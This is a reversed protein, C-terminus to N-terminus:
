PQVTVAAVGSGDAQTFIVNLNQVGDYQGVQATFPGVADAPIAVTMRQIQIDGLRWQLGPVAVGGGIAVRKGTSDFVHVFPAFNWQWRDPQLEEIQWYTLLVAQQGAQPAQEHVAALFSIGKDGKRKQLAIGKLSESRVRYRQVFSGDDFVHREGNNTESAKDAGIPQPPRGGGDSFLLYTAGGTPVFTIQDANISRDLTFLHGALSNLTWENVDAFIVAGPSRAEAPILMHMMDIGAGVPLAGLQHAGPHALTDQAFRLTNIGLLIAIGASGAALVVRGARWRLLVGAGQAALVYGAPLTLLLYFPHVVGSVFSMM